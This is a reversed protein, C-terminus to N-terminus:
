FCKIIATVPTKLAKLGLSSEAWLPLPTWLAPARGLLLAAFLSRAPSCVGTTSQKVCYEQPSTDRTETKSLVPHRHRHSSLELGTTSGKVEAHTHCPLSADQAPVLNFM